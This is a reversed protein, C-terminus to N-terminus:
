QMMVGIASLGSLDVNKDVENSLLDLMPKHNMETTETISKCLDKFNSGGGVFYIDQLESERNNFRYFNIVKMVEIAIRGFVEHCYDKELVNNFNTNKYTRAVFEDVNEHETIAKDILNTGAHINRLVCLEEGKFVYVQTTRHGLNIICYEKEKDAVGIEVANRMVNTMAIEQPIITRLKFGANAFINIYTDATEKSMVAGVLNMEKPTNQEDYIMEQMAYDYVYKQPEETIYDMFEFPLNVNLQEETMAPLTLHRCVVVEDPVVVGCEAKPLKHKYRLEKLFDSVMHPAQIIGEKILNEPMQISHVIIKGKERKAIKIHSDGMDFTLSMKKM